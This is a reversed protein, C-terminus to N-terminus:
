CACSQLGLDTQMPKSSDTIKITTLLGKKEYLVARM